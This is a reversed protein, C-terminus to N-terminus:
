WPRHGGRWGAWGVLPVGRDDEVGRQWAARHRPTSAKSAVEVGLVKWAAGLRWLAGRLRGRSGRESEGMAAEDRAEEENEGKGGLAAATRRRLFGYGVGSNPSSFRDM